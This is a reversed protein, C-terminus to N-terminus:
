EYRAVWNSRMDLEEECAQYEILAQDIRSGIERKLLCIEETTMDSLDKHVELTPQNEM